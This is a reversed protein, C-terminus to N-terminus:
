HPLFLLDVYGLQRQLSIAEADNVHRVGRKDVYHMRYGMVLVQRLLIEASSGFSHLARDDVELMLAPRNRRLTETAGALVREEAGQVDVKILSVPPWGLEQMVTDLRVTATPIGAEGIRHDAPNDPNLALPLEGDTEAVLARRAVLRDAFKRKAAWRLLESYNNQEPEFALVRGRGTVWRSFPESFFGINAGVDVVWTDPRVFQRLFRPDAEWATKYMRYLFLFSARGLTTDFVGLRRVARYGALLSDQFVKKMLLPPKRFNYKLLLRTYLRCIVSM